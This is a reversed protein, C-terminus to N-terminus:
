ECINGEPERAWWKGAGYIPTFTGMKFIAVALTELFKKFSM